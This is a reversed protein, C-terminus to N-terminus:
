INIQVYVQYVNVFECLPFFFDLILRINFAVFSPNFRHLVRWLKYTYKMFLLDVCIM